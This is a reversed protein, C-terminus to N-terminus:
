ATPTADDEGKAEIAEKAAKKDAIMREELMQARATRTSVVRKKLVELENEQYHQDDLKDVKPPLKAWCQTEVTFYDFVNCEAQLSKAYANAEELTCFCGFIKIGFSDAKQNTETPSVISMVAFRQGQVLGNRPKFDWYMEVREEVDQEVHINQEFSM